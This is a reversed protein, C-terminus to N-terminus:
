QTTTRDSSVSNGGGRAIDRGGERCFEGLRLRNEVNPLLWEEEGDSLGASNDRMCMSMGSGGVNSM